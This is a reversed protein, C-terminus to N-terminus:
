SPPISHIVSSRNRRGVIFFHSLGFSDKTRVTRKACHQKPFVALAAFYLPHKMCDLSRNLLFHRGFFLTGYHLFLVGILSYIQRPFHNLADTFTRGSFTAEAGRRFKDNPLVTHVLREPELKHLLLSAQRVEGSRIVQRRGLGCQVIQPNNTHFASLPGDHFRNLNPIGAICIDPLLYLRNHVSTQLM